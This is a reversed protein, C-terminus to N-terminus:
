PKKAGSAPDADAPAATPSGQAAADAPAAAPTAAPPPRLPGKIGCSSLLLLCGLTVAIARVM